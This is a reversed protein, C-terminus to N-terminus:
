HLLLDINFSNKDFYINKTILKLIIYYTILSRKLINLYTKQNESFRTFNVFYIKSKSVYKLNIVM